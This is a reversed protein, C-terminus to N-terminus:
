GPVARIGPLASLSEELEAFAERLSGIQGAFVSEPDIGGSNAAIVAHPLVLGPRASLPKMKVFQCVADLQEGCHNGGHGGYTVILVPKGAWEDYLHDIANKLAAPYGGNYQPTVLVFASASKIKRSWARTHEHRYYGMQPIGPEDDMPLKWEALDIVEFTRSAQKRGIGAVWRAIKPAIRQARVSGAIVLITTSM